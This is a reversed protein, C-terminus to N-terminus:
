HLDGPLPSIASTVPVPIVSNGTDRYFNHIDLIQDFIKNFVRVIGPDFHRGAQDNIFEKTEEPRWAKKYPRDSALADFVDAVAVIRCSLPINEESLGYPYGSGDWKEHHSLSIEGAMKMLESNSDQLIEVGLTTHTKMIDWEEPSFKGPKLLIYDPIAIKGIDHLPSAHLMLQIFKQDVQLHKAILASINSMRLIHAGTEHDRYEAAKGLKQIVELKSDWLERTRHNVMEELTQNRNELKQYALELALLNKIRSLLELRNFPKSIFDLAGQDFARVKTEHSDQATLFAIPPLKLHTEKKLIEVVDFGNLQPMNIDLLILSPRKKRYLELITSSSEICTIDLYGSSRLIRELLKLNVPEDDVIFIPAHQIESVNPVCGPGPSFNEM